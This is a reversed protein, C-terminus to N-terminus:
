LIKRECLDSHLREPSTFHITQFGLRTAAAINPESDDIFLCDAATANIRHLLIEYIAPDPKAVKEAGSLVVTDFWSLFEFRKYVLPYTEASWNSLATLRYGADRLAALIKVTGPIAADVMEEWRGYYARIYNEYEPYLAIREATAESLPRGEDQKVNWASPCVVALFYEMETENNPFMKTYLYRPNWDILVAGLDFVIIPKKNQKDKSM